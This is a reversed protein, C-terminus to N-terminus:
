VCPLFDLLLSLCIFHNYTTLKPLISYQGDWGKMQIIQSWVLCMCCKSTIATTIFKEGLIEKLSNTPVIWLLNLVSLLLSFSCM